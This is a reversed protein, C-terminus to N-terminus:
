PRASARATNKPREVAPSTFGLADHLESDVAVTTRAFVPETEQDNVKINFVVTDFYCEGAKVKNIANGAGQVHGDKGNSLSLFKGNAGDRLNATVNVKEGNDMLFGSLFVGNAGSKKWLVLKDEWQGDVQVAGRLVPKDGKKEQQDSM